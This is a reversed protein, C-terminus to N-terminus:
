KPIRSKLERGFWRRWLSVTNRQRSQRVPAFASAMSESLLLNGLTANSVQSVISSPDVISGSQGTIVRRYRGTKPSLLKEVAAMSDYFTVRGLDCNLKLLTRMEEPQMMVSADEIHDANLCDVLLKLWEISTDPKRVGGKILPM